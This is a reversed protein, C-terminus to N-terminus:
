TPKHATWGRLAAFVVRAGAVCQGHSMMVRGVGQRLGKGRGTEGAGGREEMGESM